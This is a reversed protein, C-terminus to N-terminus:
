AMKKKTKSDEFAEKWLEIKTLYSVMILAQLENLLRM